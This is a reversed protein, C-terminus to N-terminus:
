DGHYSENYPPPLDHENSHTRQGSVIGNQYITSIAGHPRGNPVHSNSQGADRQASVDQREIGRVFDQIPPMHGNAQRNEVNVQLLPEKINYQFVLSCILSICPIM